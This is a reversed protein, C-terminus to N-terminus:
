KRERIEGLSTLISTSRPFYRAHAGNGKEESEKVIRRKRNEESVSPHLDIPFFANGM